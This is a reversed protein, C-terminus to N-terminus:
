EPILTLTDIDKVVLRIVQATTEFVEQTIGEANDIFIPAKSDFRESFVRIVDLGCLIKMADNMSRYPVGEPSTVDCMEVIGGDITTDFMKWRATHFLANISTEVSDIDAKVFEAARQEERECAALADAFAKAEKEKRDILELQEARVKGVALANQAKVEEISYRENESNIREEIAKRRSVLEAADDSRNATQLAKSRLAQEQNVLLIFQASGRAQKEIAALDAEPTAEYKKLEESWRAAEDGALNYDAAAKFIIDNMGAIRADQEGIRDKLAKADAILKDLCAKREAKFLEEAKARAEQITAAPIEQGCYPCTTEPTYEFARAKEALYKDGMKQLQVAMRGREAEMDALEQRTREEQAKSGRMKAECREINARTRM